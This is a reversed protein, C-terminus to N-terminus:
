GTCGLRHAKKFDFQHIWLNAAHKVGAIVPKAEHFTRHDQVLPRDDYVSPWLLARGKKPTATVGLRAFATEGGAEVESLYFFLTYVRPGCPLQAHAPIYDHHGGYYQGVEYQLVQVFESNAQPVRTVNEAREMVRQILADAQCQQTDCWATMSTRHSSRIAQFSGDANMAGADESVVWGKTRGGAIFADAEEDSVFNDFMLLWPKGSDGDPSSLVKPELKAFRESSAHRFTEDIAGPPVSLPVDPDVACRKKYDLLDCKDCSSACHVLMYGPNADCEGSAAWSACDKENKDKCSPDKRPAASAEQPPTQVADRRETREPQIDPPREMKAKPRQKTRAADPLASLNVVGSLAAAALAVAVAAVVYAPTASGGGMTKSPPPPSKKKGM